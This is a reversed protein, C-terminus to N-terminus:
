KMFLPRTDIGDERWLKLARKLNALKRQCDVYIRDLEAPNSAALRDRTAKDLFPHDALPLLLRIASCEEPPILWPHEYQQQIRALAESVPIWDSGLQRRIRQRTRPSLSNTDM